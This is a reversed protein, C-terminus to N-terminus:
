ARLPKTAAVGRRTRRRRRLQEILPPWDVFVIVVTAAWATYDLGLTLGTGVHLAVAGAVFLPRLRPILIGLPFGLETGLIGAAVLHSMWPHDAILLALANASPQSDSSAYMVWRMNESTVWSIGSYRLKQLGVFLYALAIAAIAARIPWGYAPGRAPPEPEGRRRRRRADLSWAGATARPAVALPILALTLLVDNHVVKGTSQLMGNLFILCLVSLPLSARIWLGAAAALAAIVGIVQLTTALETSPMAHLARMFSMPQFLAAPQGAVDGIPDIVLRLAMLACLGIRVAALRQASEPAFLLAEARRM